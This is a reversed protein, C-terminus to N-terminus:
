ATRTLISFCTPTRAAMYTAAFFYGGPAPSLVDELLRLDLNTHLNISLLSKQLDQLGGDCLCTQGGGKGTARRSAVEAATSPGTFRLVVQDFDEDFEETHMLLSLNHREEATPPTIHLHGNGKFVAGTVKGNVQGYFAVSGSRFTFTAADRHLVLDKSQFLKAAQCSAACSSIFPTPTPQASRM